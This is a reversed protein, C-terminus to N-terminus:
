DDVKFRLPYAGGAYVWAYGYDDYEIRRGKFRKRLRSRKM